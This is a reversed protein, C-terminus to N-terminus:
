PVPQPSSFLRYVFRSDDMGEIGSPSGPQGVLEAAVPYITDGFRVRARPDARLHELWRRGEAPDVYLAGDVVFYNVEVSYPDSPRVELDVFADDVFSWDDIRESSAHGRLEGGPFVFVPGGCGIAALTIVTILAINLALKMTWAGEVIAVREFGLKEYLRRAFNDPEVSLSLTHVADASAREVLGQMLLRGVGAGRSDPAVGIAIEPTHADIYGYSHSDDTFLRHLAAGVPAGAREAIVARDGPREGFGSTWKQFEADDRFTELAPRERDARWFFAEFLMGELVPRDGATADRIEVPESM